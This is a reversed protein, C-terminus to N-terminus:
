VENNRVEAHVSQIRYGKGGSKKYVVAGGTGGLTFSPRIVLPFRYEQAIEKGDLFSRAITFPAMGVGIEEMKQRFLERDEMVKIANVDVGIMRVAYKQWVGTEHCKIALNLVTQGGMSALVADIKREGLIKIISETTLPM